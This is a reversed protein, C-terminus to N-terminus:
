PQAGKVIEIDIQEQKAKAAQLRPFLAAFAARSRGISSPLRDEGVLICGDTDASTNGPHIRVGLYNPVALLLPLLIGFRPSYTIDVRYTGYPIATQGPVKVGSDRVEDELTWCQWAGDISLSGITFGPVSATGKAFQLRELTLKM